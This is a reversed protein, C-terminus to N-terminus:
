RASIVGKNTAVTWRGGQRAISQVRGVGPVLDGTSVGILGAPGQLIAKGNIVERVVWNPIKKTEIPGQLKLAPSASATPAEIAASRAASTPSTAVAPPQPPPAMVVAASREIRDLRENLQDLKNSVLGGTAAAPANREIRDLRESLEQLKTVLQRQNSETSSAVTNITGRLDGVAAVSAARVEELKGTIREVVAEGGATTASESIKASRQDPSTTWRAVQAWAMCSVETLDIAEHTKVGAFWGAGLVLVLAVARALRRPRARRPAELPISARDQAATKIDSTM